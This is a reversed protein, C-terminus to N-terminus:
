FIRANKEEEEEKEEKEEESVTMDGEEDDEGEQLWERTWLPVTGRGRRARGREAVGRLSKFVKVSELVYIKSRTQSLIQDCSKRCMAIDSL